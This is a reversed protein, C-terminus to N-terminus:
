LVLLARIACALRPTSGRAEPVVKAVSTPTTVASFARGQHIRPVPNTVNSTSYNPHVGRRSRKVVIGVHLIWRVREQLCRTVPTTQTSSGLM